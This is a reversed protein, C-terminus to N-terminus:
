YREQELPHVDVITFFRDLEVFPNSGGDLRVIAVRQALGRARVAARRHPASRADCAARLM